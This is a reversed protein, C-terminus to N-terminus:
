VKVERFGARREEEYQKLARALLWSTAKSKSWSREAALKEVEAKVEPPVCCSLIPSEAM